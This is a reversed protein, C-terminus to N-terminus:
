KDKNKLPKVKREDRWALIERVLFRNARGIKYVPLLRKSALDRVTRVSIGLLKAVIEADILSEYNIDIIKKSM